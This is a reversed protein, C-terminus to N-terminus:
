LWLLLGFLLSLPSIYGTRVLGQSHAVSLLSLLLVSLALTITVLPASIKMRMAAVRTVAVKRMDGAMSLAKPSFIIVIIINIYYHIKLQSSYCLALSSFCRQVQFHINTAKANMSPVINFFIRKM